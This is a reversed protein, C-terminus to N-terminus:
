GTRNNWPKSPLRISSCPLMTHTYPM